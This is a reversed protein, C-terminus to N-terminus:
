FQGSRRKAEKQLNEEVQLSEQKAKADKLAFLGLAQLRAGDSGKDDEESLLDAMDSNEPDEDKDKLNKIRNRLKVVEIARRLRQRTRYSRLEPLLDHDTATEGSLWRHQMAQQILTLM